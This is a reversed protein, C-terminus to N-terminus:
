LSGTISDFINSIGHGLFVVAGVVFVAVLAIILAYEVMSQGETARLRRLFSSCQSVAMLM